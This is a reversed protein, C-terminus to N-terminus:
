EANSEGTQNTRFVEVMTDAGVELPHNNKRNLIIKVFPKDKLIKSTVEDVVGDIEIIDGSWIDAATTVIWSKM